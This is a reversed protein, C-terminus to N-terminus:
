SFSEGFAEDRKKPRMSATHFKRSARPWGWLPQFNVVGVPQVVPRVFRPRSADFSQCWFFLPPMLQLNRTPRFTKITAFKCFTETASLQKEWIKIWWNSTQSASALLSTIHPESSCDWFVFSPKVAKLPKTQQLDRLHVMNCLIVATVSCQLLLRLM